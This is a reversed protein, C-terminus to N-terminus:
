EFSDSSCTPPYPKFSPHLLSRVCVRGRGRLDQPAQTIDAARLADHPVGCAELREDERRLAVHAVSEVVQLRRKRAETPAAAPATRPPLGDCRM